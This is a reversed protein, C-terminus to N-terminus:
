GWTYYVEAHVEDAFLVDEAVRDAGAIRAAARLAAGICRITDENHLWPRYIVKVRCQGRRRETLRLETGRRFESWRREIGRLIREPRVVRFLLRFWVQRLLHLNREHAWEVFADVPQGAFHTDAIAYFIANMHVEPIWQRADIPERVLSYVPYPLAGPEVDLPKDGLADLYM